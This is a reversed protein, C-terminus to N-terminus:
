KNAKKKVVVAVIAVLVVVALVVIAIIMRSSGSKESMEDYSFDNNKNDPVNNSDKKESVSTSKGSIDTTNETSIENSNQSKKTDVFSSTKSEETM